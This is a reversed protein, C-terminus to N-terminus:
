VQKNLAHEFTKMRTIRKRLNRIERINKVKGTSLDVRLQWLADKSEQIDKLLEARSMKKLKEVDKKKM